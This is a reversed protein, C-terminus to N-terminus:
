ESPLERHLVGPHYGKETLVTALKETLYVSRHRGGTCGFAITLYSKGEGQYRPLLSLMLATLSEFFPKFAPDGEIYRGVDADRGTLPRLEDVYHPNQLFRVDIVIDAERPLGKAYSFSLVTVTLRDDTSVGFQGTLLRKLDHGTMSGTDIVFEAHTRLGQMLHRERMIGDMVPRDVAMPHRRRTETYRRMLTEASCDLFLLSIDFQPEQRMAEILALLKEPDFARTRSDIGIAMRNPMEMGGEAEPSLSILNPLLWLPLNDVAEFGMDELSKLASSKGAGSMGSVILVEKRAALLPPASPDTM